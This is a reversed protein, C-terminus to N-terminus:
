SSEVGETPFESNSSVNESPVSGSNCISSSFSLSFLAMSSSFSGCSSGLSFISWSGDGCGDVDDAGIGEVDVAGSGVGSAPGLVLFAVFDTRNLSPSFWDFDGGREVIGRVRVVNGLFALVRASVLATSSFNLLVVLAGLFLEILFFCLYVRNNNGKLINIHIYM